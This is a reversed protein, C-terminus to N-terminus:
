VENLLPSPVPKSEYFGFDLGPATIEHLRKKLQRYERDRESKGNREGPRALDFNMKELEIMRQVIERPKKLQNAKATPNM